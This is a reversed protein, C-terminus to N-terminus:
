ISDRLISLWTLRDYHKSEAFIGELEVENLRSLKAGACSM